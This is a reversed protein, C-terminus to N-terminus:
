GNYGPRSNTNRDRPEGRPRLCIIAVLLLAIILIKDAGIRHALEEALNSPTTATIGEAAKPLPHGIWARWEEELGRRDFGYVTLLAGDVTAGEGLMTLLHIIKEKGGREEILFTVLSQAQAYAPGVLEPKTPKSSVYSLRLPKVIPGRSASENYTALGESLWFPLYDYPEGLLQYTLLHTLEHTLTDEWGRHRFFTLTKRDFALGLTIIPASDWREPVALKMDNWGQYVVIKIPARLTLGTRKGIRAFSKGLQSFVTDAFKPNGYWFLEVDGRKQVHWDFRNDLYLFSKEKTRLLKGHMGKLRWFYTIRAAPPIEGPRLSVEVQGLSSSSVEARYRYQATGGEIKYQLNAEELEGTVIIEFRIRKGFSFTAAEHVVQIGTQTPPGTQAQVAIPATAAILLCLLLTTALAKRM